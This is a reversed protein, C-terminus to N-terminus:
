LFVISTQIAKLYVPTVMCNKINRVQTVPHPTEARSSEEFEYCDRTM